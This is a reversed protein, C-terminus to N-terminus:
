NIIRIDLKLPYVKRILSGFKKARSNIVYNLSTKDVVSPVAFCVIGSQILQTGFLQSSKQFPIADWGEPLEEMSPKVLLQDPCDFEMVSYSIYREAAFLEPDVTLRELLASAITSSGYLVAYGPLNWRGGYLKAGEGSIDCFETRAIRYIKM